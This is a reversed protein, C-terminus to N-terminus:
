CASHAAASRRGLVILGAAILMQLGGYLLLAFLV